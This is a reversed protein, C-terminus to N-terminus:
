AATALAPRATAKMAETSFFHLTQDVVADVIIAWVHGAEEDQRPNAEEPHSGLEEGKLKRALFMKIRRGDCPVAADGEVMVPFLNADVKALSFAMRCTVCHSTVARAVVDRVEEAEVVGDLSLYSALM